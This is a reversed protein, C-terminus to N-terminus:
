RRVEVGLESVPQGDGIRSHYAGDLCPRDVQQVGVSRRHQGQRRHCWRHAPDVPDPQSAVVVDAEVGVVVAEVWRHDAPEDVDGGVQAVNLDTVM